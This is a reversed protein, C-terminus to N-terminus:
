IQREVKDGTKFVFEVREDHYILVKDILASWLKESFSIPFDGLWSIESMFCEIVDVQFARKVKLSRLTKYEENVRDFREEYDEYTKEYEATSITGSANEEILKHM